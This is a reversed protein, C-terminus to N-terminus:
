NVQSKSLIALYYLVAPDKVPGTTPDQYEELKTGVLKQFLEQAKEKEKNNALFVAREFDRITKRKLKWRLKPDNDFVEHLDVPVSRGKIFFSGLSRISFDSVNGLPIRVQDTILIPSDFIKILEQIRSTLTVAESVVAADMREAEGITGLTVQGSHLAFTMQLNRGALITKGRNSRHVLKQMEVAAKLAKPADQPFLALIGNGLYRDVYGGYQRVIPVLNGMLTNLLEFVEEPALRDTLSTFNQIEGVMVIMSLARHDGLQVQTIDERDLFGMFERPIFRKMALNTEHIQTSLRESDVMAKSSQRILIISQCFVFIMIGVSILSPLSVLDNARAIDLLMTVFVALFGLGLLLAHPKRSIIAVILRITFFLALIITFIQYALLWNVFAWTPFGLILLGYMISGLLASGIVLNKGRYPFLLSLYAVFPPVLGTYTLFNIRVLWEFPLSPILQGLPMSDQALIRLGLVGCILGFMLAPLEQNRHLYLVGHYLSMIFFLGVLFMSGAQQFTMIQQARDLTTVQIIGNIGPGRDHFNSVELTLRHRLQNGVPEGQALAEPLIPFVRHSWEPLSFERQTGPNGITGILMGNWYVRATSTIRETHLALLTGPDLDNLITRPLDLHLQYTSYGFPTLNLREPYAMWSGQIEVGELTPRVPTRSPLSELFRTWYFDWGKMLLVSSHNKPNWDSLDVIGQATPTPSLSMPDLSPFLTPIFTHLTFVLGFGLTVLLFLIALAPYGKSQNSLDPKPLDVGTTVPQSRATPESQSPYTMCFLITRGIGIYWPNM